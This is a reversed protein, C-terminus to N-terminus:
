FSLFHRVRLGEHRTASPVGELIPSTHPTLTQALDTLFTRRWVAGIEENKAKCKRVLDVESATGHVWSAGEAGRDNNSLKCDM